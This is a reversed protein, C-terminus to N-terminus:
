LLQVSEGNGVSVAKFFAALLTSAPQSTFGAAGWSRCVALRARLRGSVRQRSCLHLRERLAPQAVMLPQVTHWRVGPLRLPGLSVRSVWGAASAHLLM